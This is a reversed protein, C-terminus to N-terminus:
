DKTLLEDIFGKLLHKNACEPLTEWIKGLGSCANLTKKEMGKVCEKLITNETNESNVLDNFSKKFPKYYDIKKNAESLEKSQANITEIYDKGTGKCYECNPTPITGTHCCHPCPKIEETNM